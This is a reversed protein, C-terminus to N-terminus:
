AEAPQVFPAIGIVTKETQVLLTEVDTPSEPNPITVQDISLTVDDDVNLNDIVREVGGRRVVLLREM